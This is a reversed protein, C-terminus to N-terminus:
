KDQQLFKIGAVFIDAFTYGKKRLQDADVKVSNAIWTSIQSKDEEIKGFIEEYDDADLYEEAWEQAKKLSLPQIEEGGSWENQGTRCSYRSMPGGKGYLFFEGTKKRYLNEAWYEFNGPHSYGANGILTATGTDYRKGNIIKKM